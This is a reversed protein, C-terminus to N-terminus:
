LNLAPVGEVSCYERTNELESALAEYAQGKEGEQWKESRDGMYMRIEEALESAKDGYAEVAAEADSWYGELEELAKELQKPTMTM